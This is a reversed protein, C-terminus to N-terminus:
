GVVRVQDRERACPSHWGLRISGGVAPEPVGLLQRAQHALPVYEGAETRSGCAHAPEAL